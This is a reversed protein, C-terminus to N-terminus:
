GLPLTVGGGAGTTADPDHLTVLRKHCYRETCCRQGRGGGRGVLGPRAQHSGMKGSQLIIFVAGTFMRPGLGRREWGKGDPVASFPVQASPMQRSSVDDRPLRLPTELHKNTNKCKTVEM